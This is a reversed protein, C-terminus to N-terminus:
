TILHGLTVLVRFLEEGYNESCLSAFIELKRSDRINHMYFHGLEIDVKQKQEHWIVMLDLALLMSLFIGGVM